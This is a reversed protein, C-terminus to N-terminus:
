LSGMLWCGIFWQVAFCIMFGDENQHKITHWLWFAAGGGMIVGLAGGFLASQWFTFIPFGVFALAVPLMLVKFWTPETM